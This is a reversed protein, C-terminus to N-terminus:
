SECLSEAKLEGSGGEEGIRSRKLAVYKDAAAAARDILCVCVYARMCTRFSLSLYTSLPSLLEFTACPQLQNAKTKM